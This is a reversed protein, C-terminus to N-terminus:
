AAVVEVGVVDDVVVVVVGAVVVVAVVKAGGDSGGNGVMGYGDLFAVVDHEAQVSTVHGHVWRFSAGPKGHSGPPISTTSGPAM